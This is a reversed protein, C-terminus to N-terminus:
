IKRDEEIILEYNDALGYRDGVWMRYTGAPMDNYRISTISKSDISTSHFNEQKDVARQITCFRPEERRLIFIVPDKDTAKVFFQLDANDTLTLIHNPPNLFINNQELNYNCTTTRKNLEVGNSFYHAKGEAIVRGFGPSIRIDPDYFIKEALLTDFATAGAGLVCCAAVPTFFRALDM